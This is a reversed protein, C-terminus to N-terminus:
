YQYDDPKSGFKKMYSASKNLDEKTFTYQKKNNFYLFLPSRFGIWYNLGIWCFAMLLDLWNFMGSPITEVLFVTAVVSLIIATLLGPNYYSKLGVNFIILHGFLEVFAFIVAALVLWHWQPLFLTPLYVTIAFWENGFLSSSQNLQWRSVVRNVNRMEVKIGGWAFGGPLGFEEFFHLHIFILGLLLMRQNFDWVFLGLALAYFGAIFPMFDYWKM